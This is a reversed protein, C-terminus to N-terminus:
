RNFRRRNRNSKWSIKKGKLSTFDIITFFVAKPIIKISIDNIGNVIDYIM